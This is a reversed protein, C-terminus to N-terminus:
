PSFRTMWNCRRERGASWSIYYTKTLRKHYHLKADASISTVHVTAPFEARGSAGPPGHRVPM